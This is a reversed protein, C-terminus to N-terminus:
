FNETKQFIEKMVTSVVARWMTKDQDLDIWDDSYYLTQGIYGCTGEIFVNKRIQFSIYM